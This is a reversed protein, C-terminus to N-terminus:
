YLDINVATYDFIISYYHKILEFRNSKFKFHVGEHVTVASSREHDLDVNRDTRDLISKICTLETFCGGGRERERKYDDDDDDDDNNNNNNNNNKKKKKKKKTNNNNNIDM